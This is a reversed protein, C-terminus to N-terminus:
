SSRKSIKYQLTSRPIGLMEAARALNGEAKEMAWHVLRSELDELVSGMDVRNVGSMKLSILAGSEKPAALDPVEAEEVRDGKALAVMMEVKHELERVNGPWPLKQLKALAEPSFTVRKRNNKIALKELFHDVLLPIDETRERLPPVRLPVVNLRYFLDERFDGTAVMASLSRKTAAILRINVPIPREGGIRECVREQLVRVLKVQIELPIDDADDLFLTGGHALEFRGIRRKTAGTFAGPEHGFLESEVLDKPLAECAIAVFPGPARFSGEHLTRAILEKGTGSEGEILVTAETGAVAHIRQLVEQIPKSQGVIKSEIRPLALQHRLAENESALREYQLLKDLKLVLEETSFPKQLYDFAGIKMAEVATEVSGYATMVIAAQAPNQKKIERLFSLGDQGPMRLDTVVVEFTSKALEQAAELPNAATVVSYGVTGLEDELVSRKIPEDEVILIRARTATM